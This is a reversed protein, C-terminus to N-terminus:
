PREALALWEQLMEGHATLLHDQLQIVRELFQGGDSREREEGERFLETLLAAFPDANWPSLVSIAEATLLIEAAALAYEPDSQAVGQLWDGSAQVDRRPSTSDAAESQVYSTLLTLPIRPPTSTDANFLRKFKAKAAAQGNADAFAATLGDACAPAWQPTGLNAVFVSVAGSWVAENSTHQLRAVFEAFPPHDGLAALAGIRGWVKQAHPDTDAHAAALAKEVQDFQRHYSYYLCNNATRWPRPSTGLARWFLFWGLAPELHIIRPLHQLVMARISPHADRAALRVTATLLPDLNAGRSLIHETLVLMAQVAIGRTSNMAVSLGDPDIADQSASADPETARLLQAGVWTLRYEDEPTQVAYACGLVAEAFDREERLRDFRREIVDLLPGALDAEAPVEGAQWGDGRSLNGLRYRLHSGLGTLVALWAADPISTDWQRLWALLRVPWRSALERLASLVVEGRPMTDRHPDSDSARRATWHILRLLGSSSLAELETHAISPAAWGSWSTTPPARDESGVQADLETIVADAAPTRMFAPIRNLLLRQHYTVWREVPSGASLALISEQLREQDETSILFYSRSILQALEWGFVDDGLMTPDLLVAVPPVSQPRPAALMGSIAFYRLAGERAQALALAHDRWWRTGYIAHWVIADQVANLLRGIPRRFRMESKTRLEKHRSYDLLVDVWPAEDDWRYEAWHSWQQLSCLAADLLSTSACMRHALFRADSFTHEDCELADDWARARAVEETVRGAVYAWLVDDHDDTATVWHALAPGTVGNDAEQRQALFRFIQTLTPHTWGTFRRFLSGAAFQLHTDKMWPASLCALYLSVFASQLPPCPALRDLHANLWRPSQTAWWAARFHEEFFATWESSTAKIYFAEFLPLHHNYLYRILSLDHRSPVTDGLSMALMRQMQFAVGLTGFVERLQARLAAPDSERLSFFFTRITPRVFPVGARACILTLLTDGRGMAASVALVDMLTQHAFTVGGHRSAALVGVSLLRRRLDESLDAEARSLEVRRQEIMREAIRVLHRMAEDGLTSDRRVLVDLYRESLAQASSVPGTEGHQVLEYFLALLRPVTLIDRISALAVPDLGWGSLLPAVVSEWDLPALSVTMGWTRNALRADYKLDFDRCAAIVSVGPMARWRDLLNLFFQFTEHDRALSLVDLSDIVVTVAQTRALRAIDSMVTAPLGLESRESANAAAAFERAQVFVTAHGAAELRELVSLLVCTKGLGPGAAVLVTSGAPALAGLIQEVEPRPLQHPGIGRPWDRGIQSLPRLLADLEAATRDPGLALGSSELRRRADAATIM